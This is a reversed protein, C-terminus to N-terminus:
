VGGTSGYRGRHFTLGHVGEGVALDQVRGIVVYHDGAEHVATISCDVYAAAGTLLPSGTAESPRWSLGAFKDAGRSAMVDSIEVQDDALVNVCFSGSRWILPWARSTRAPCFLVLPPDLSVSTFSQCTLGVPTDGDVGTVVAVGSAFRGLVERFQRARAVAEPDDAHVGSDEGPRYEFDRGLPDTDDGDFTYDGLWSHILAEDPSVHRPGGSDAAREPGAM